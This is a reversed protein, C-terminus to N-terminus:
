QTSIDRIQLTDLIIITLGGHGDLTVNHGQLDAYVIQRFLKVHFLLPLLPYPSLWRPFHKAYVTPWHTGRVRVQYIHSSTYLTHRRNLFM